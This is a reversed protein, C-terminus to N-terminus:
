LEFLDRDVILDKENVSGVETCSGVLNLEHLSRHLQVQFYLKQIFLHPLHHVDLLRQLVM